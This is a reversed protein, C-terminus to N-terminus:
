ILNEEEKVEVFLAKGEKEEMKGERGREEWKEVKEEGKRGNGKQKRGNKERETRKRGRKRGKKGRKEGIGRVVAPGLGGFNGFGIKWSIEGSCSASVDTGM